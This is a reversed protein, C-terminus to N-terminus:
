VEFTCNIQAANRERQPFSVKNIRFPPIRQPDQVHCYRLWLDKSLSLYLEDFTRFHDGINTAAWEANLIIPSTFKCAM